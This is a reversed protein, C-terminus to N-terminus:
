DLMNLFKIRSNILKNLIIYKVEDINSVQYLVMNDVKLFSNFWFDLRLFFKKHFVLIENQFKIHM